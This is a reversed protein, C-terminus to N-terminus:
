TEYDYYTMLIVYNNTIPKNEDGNYVVGRGSLANINEGERQEGEGDASTTQM